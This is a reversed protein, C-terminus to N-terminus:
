MSIVLAGLAVWGVVVLALAVFLTLSIEKPLGEARLRRVRHWYQWCAGLLAVTGTTVLFHAVTLVSVIRAGRFGKVEVTALVESVKGISFGFSIMSLSTRIWAMLTREAAFYSRVLALDTSKEAPSKTQASSSTLLNEM